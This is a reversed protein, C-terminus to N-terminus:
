WLCLKQQEVSICVGMSEPRYRTQFKGGGHKIRNTVVTAKEFAAKLCHIQMVQWLFDTALKISRVVEFAIGTMGLAVAPHRRGCGTRVVIFGAWFAVLKGACYATSALWRSLTYGGRSNLPVSGTTSDRKFKVVILNTFKDKQTFGEFCTNQLNADTYTASSMRVGDRVGFVGFLNEGNDRSRRLLATSEEMERANPWKISLKSYTLKSGDSDFDWASMRWAEFLIENCRSPASQCRLFQLSLLIWGDGRLEPM